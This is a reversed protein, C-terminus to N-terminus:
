AATPVRRRSKAAACLADKKAIVLRGLVHLNRGLIGLALYREFGLESSDRCRKLGNGSQLAGIASEIGPHNQRAERFQVTANADQEVSQKAGPKPLCPHELLKALATQNQPSHFGRDFSGRRIRGDLRAQVIRTQEVVVDADSKDRPLVHHHTLFGAGDESVLVLRGFQVPEGAKGRKYLQTHPEFMSFLKDTNPVTEGDIVRRRATDMVRETREIFTTLEPLSLMAMADSTRLIECLEHARKLITRALKLLKQYATKLRPKYKAGKRAAIRAISLATRKVRKLLHAHQRWGVAGYQAAPPSGLELVKRLGDLILSSETPYHINTEMVFSDTRMTQAAEPVLRHGEGVILHSIAEITEPQLLCVNDCIRRWSFNPGGDWDGLGMMMRLTRHQEALDQLRDYNLNCGLRVAGLVLIQWDDLGRRGRDRRSHQNVDAAVLALIEDRVVPQSYVHQLAALIPIIEDRCGFNLTIEEIAECGFRKQEEFAKRM